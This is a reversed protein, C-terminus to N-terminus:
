LDIKPLSEVIEVIQVSLVIVSLLLDLIYPQRHERAINERNESIIRKLQESKGM